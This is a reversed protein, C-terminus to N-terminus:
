IMFCIKLTFFVFYLLYVTNFILGLSLFLLTTIFSSTVIWLWQELKKSISQSNLAIENKNNEWCIKINNTQHCIYCIISTYSLFKINNSTIHIKLALINIYFNINKHLFLQRTNFILNEVNLAHTPYDKTKNM